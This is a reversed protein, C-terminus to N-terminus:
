RLTYDLKPSDHRPDDYAWVRFFDRLCSEMSGHHSNDNTFASDRELRLVQNLATEFSSTKYYDTNSQHMSTGTKPVKEHSVRGHHRRQGQQAKGVAHSEPRLNARLSAETSAVNKNIREAAVLQQPAAKSASIAASSHRRSKAVVLRKVVSQMSQTM